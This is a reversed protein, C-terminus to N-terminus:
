LRARQWSLFLAFVAKRVIEQIIALFERAFVSIGDKSFSAIMNSGMRWTKEKREEGGREGKRREEKDKQEENGSPERMELNQFLSMTFPRRREHEFTILFGRLVDNFNM